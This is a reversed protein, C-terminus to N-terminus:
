VVARVVMFIVYEDTFGMGGELEMMMRLIAMNGVKDFRPNGLLRVSEENRLLARFLYSCIIAIQM